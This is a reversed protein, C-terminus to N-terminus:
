NEDDDAEDYDKQPQGHRDTFDMTSTHDESIVMDEVHSIISAPITIHRGTHLCMFKYSGQFNATPGLCITGRTREDMSNKRKNEERTEVYAGFPLKCQKNYDLATGTMITRPSYASSVGSSPPFANRWLFVVNILEIIMRNLIKKFSLTGRIERVREKVLRTQRESVPFHEDTATTNLQVGM